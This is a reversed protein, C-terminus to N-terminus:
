YNSIDLKNKYDPMQWDTNEDDNIVINSLEWYQNIEEQKWYIQIKKPLIFDQIKEFDLVQVRLILNLNQDYLEQQLIKEEKIKIINLYNEQQLNTEQVIYFTEDKKRIEKYNQIENIFLFNILVKPYFIKKLRSKEVDSNKCFFLTKYDYQKSWFWFFDNNSGIELNNKLLLKFNNYKEYTVFGNIKIFNQTARLNAHIKKIKSLKENIKELVGSENSIEYNTINNNNKLILFIFILLLFSIILFFKNM